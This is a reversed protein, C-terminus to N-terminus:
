STVDLEAWDDHHTKYDFYTWLDLLTYQLTQVTEESKIM